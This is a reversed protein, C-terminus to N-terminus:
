PPLAASSDGDMAARPSNQALMRGITAWYVVLAAEAVLLATM